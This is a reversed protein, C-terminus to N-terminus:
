FGTINTFTSLEMTFPPPTIASLDLSSPYWIMLFCHYKYVHETGYQSSLPPPSFCTACTSVCIERGCQILTLCTMTHDVPPRASWLGSQPSNRGSTCDSMTQLNCMDGMCHWMRYCEATLEPSMSQKKYLSIIASCIICDLMLYHFLVPLFSYFM